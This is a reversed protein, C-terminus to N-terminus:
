VISTGLRNEILYMRAYDVAIPNCKGFILSLITHRFLFRNVNIVTLRIEKLRYCIFLHPQTISGHVATKKSQRVIKRKTIYAIASVDYTRDHIFEDNAVKDLRVTQFDANVM